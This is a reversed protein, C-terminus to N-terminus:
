FGGIGELSDGAHWYRVHVTETINMVYTWPFGGNVHVILPHYYMATKTYGYNVVPIGKGIAYGVEVHRGGSGRNVWGIPNFVVLVKSEEIDEYDKKACAALNEPTHRYEEQDLWRSTVEFLNKKVHYLDRARKLEDRFEYPGALYVKIM